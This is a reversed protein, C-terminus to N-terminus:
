GFHLKRWAMLLLAMIAAPAPSPVQGAVPAAIGLTLNDFAAWDRTASFDISRATGAFLVQAQSWSCFLSDGACDRDFQHHINVSALLDGSGNEGSYLHIVADLASSYYFSFGGSFGEAINLWASFSDFFLVTSGSPVNSFGGSGDAAAVLALAGAAFRVGFNNGSNGQSDQGGNYFELLQSENAAGEFDLEIPAALTPFSTICLLLGAAGTRLQRYLRRLHIHM